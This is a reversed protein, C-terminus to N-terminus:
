EAHDSDGHVALFNKSLEEVAEALCTRSVRNRIRPQLACRKEGPVLCTVPLVAQLRRAMHLYVSPTLLAFTLLTEMEEEKM